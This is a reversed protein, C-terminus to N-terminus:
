KIIEQFCYDFLWVEFWFSVPTRNNPEVEKKYHKRWEKYSIPEETMFEAPNFRYKKYFKFASHFQKDREDLFREVIREVTKPFQKILASEDSDASFEFEIDKRKGLPECM